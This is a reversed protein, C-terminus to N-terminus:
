HFPGSATPRRGRLHGVGRGLHLRLFRGLSGTRLYGLRRAAVHTPIGLGLLVLAAESRVASVFRRCTTGARLFRRRLTRECTGTRIAATSVGSTVILLATEIDIKLDLRSLYHNVVHRVVEGASVRRSGLQCPGELSAPSPIPRSPM